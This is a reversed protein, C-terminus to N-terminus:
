IIILQEVSVVVDGVWDPVIFKVQEIANGFSILNYLELYTNSQVSYLGIRILVNASAHTRLNWAMELVLNTHAAATLTFQKSASCISQGISSPATLYYLSTSRLPTPDTSANYMKLVWPDSNESCKTFENFLSPDNFDFLWCEKQSSISEIKALLTIVIFIYIKMKSIRLSFDRLTDNNDSQIKLVM